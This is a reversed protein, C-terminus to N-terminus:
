LPPLSHAEAPRLNAGREAYPQEGDNLAHELVILDPTERALHARAARADPALAVQFGAGAILEAWLGALTTEDEIILMRPTM